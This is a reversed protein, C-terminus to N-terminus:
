DESPLMITIVPAPDDGPGVVAKLTVLRHTRRDFCSGPSPSQENTQWDGRDAKAVYLSFPIESADPTTSATVAFRFMAMVDWLRGAISQGAGDDEEFEVYADWVARTLAVPYRIGAERATKSADVLYGDALADARTYAHILPFDEFM